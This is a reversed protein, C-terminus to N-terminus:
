VTNNGIKVNTSTNNIEAISIVINEGVFMEFM